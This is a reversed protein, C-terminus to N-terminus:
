RTVVFKRDTSGGRTHDLLRAFYVGPPLRNGDNDTASWAFEHTGADRQGDFPRAVLRGTNDFVLLEYRGPGPAALTFRALSRVPNPAIRALGLRLPQAAPEATGTNPSQMLRMMWDHTTWQRFPDQNSSIYSRMEVPATADAGIGMAPSSPPWHAILWIDDPTTRTIDLTFSAWGPASPAMVNYAEGLVNATDPMGGVDPCVAVYDFPTNAINVMIRGGTIAYPPPLTPSCRVYFKDNDQRGVWYFAEWSGDDYILEFTVAFPLRLTDGQVYDDTTRAELRANYRGVSTGAWETFSVTVTEDPALSGTVTSDVFMVAGASDTITLRCNIADNYSGNNTVLGGPAFSRNITMEAYPPSIRVPRGDHFCKAAVVLSDDGPYGDGSLATYFRCDYAGYADPTWRHFIVSAASGPAVNAAVASDHFVISDLGNDIVVHVPISVTSDGYNRVDAEPEIETGVQLHRGPVTVASVGANRAPSAGVIVAYVEGGNGMQGAHVAKGSAAAFQGDDSIACAFLSGPEQDRTIAVLPTTDGRDMVTFVRFDGSPAIDGWSAAAVRSGDASLDVCSVYAGTGGFNQYVWLPTASSSDFLCLKGNAYGTGCAITSGDRSVAIGAVWPTGVQASWRLAYETGDWRYLKLMGYFDGTALLNGDGSLKAAYQTGSTSTGIPVAGRRNGGEYVMCSDYVTVAVISGDPTVDIGQLRAPESVPASLVVSGDEPDLWYLTGNQCAIVSSGDDCVTAFGGAAAPYSYVWDPWASNRSWKNVASTKSMAMVRGNSSVGVQHGGYAWTFDGQSEWIPVETALTRYYGARQANLYWNALIHAGDASIGVSQAIGFRHNRDVWLVGTDSRLAPVAPREIPRDYLPGNETNIRYWTRVVGDAGTEIVPEIGVEIALAAGAVLLIVALARM